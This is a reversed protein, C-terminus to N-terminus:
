WDQQRAVVVTVLNVSLIHLTDAIVDNRGSARMIERLPLISLDPLIRGGGAFCPGTAGGPRAPFPNARGPRREAKKEPVGLGHDTARLGDDSGGTDLKKKRRSLTHQTHTHKEATERRQQTTQQRLSSDPKNKDERM